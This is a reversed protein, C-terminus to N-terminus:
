IPDLVYIKLNIVVGLHELPFIMPDWAMFVKDITSVLIFFTMDIIMVRRSVSVPFKLLKKFIRPALGLGFCLRLFEYLNEVWLFRAVKQSDKHLLVSCYADKLDIKCLYNGMLLTFELCHLVKVTERSSKQHGFVFQKFIGRKFLSSRFHFGRAANAESGSRSIKATESKVNKSGEETSNVNSTSNPLRASFVAARSRKGSTGM